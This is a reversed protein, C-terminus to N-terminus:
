KNNRRKEYLVYAIAVALIWLHESLFGAAKAGLTLVKAALNLLAGLVPAAKEAIKALTKAFKSTSRADRKVANRAGMVITTTNGAVSIAVISIGGLNRKAWRKFREFRPLDINEAEEKVISQATESEPRRNTRLRIEDAKLAAVDATAEYLKAKRNDGEKEALERWHNEEIKLFEDSKAALIGRFERLENESLETIVGDAIEDIEEMLREISGRLVSNALESSVNVDLKEEVLEVATKEHEAEARKM